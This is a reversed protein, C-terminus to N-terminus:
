QRVGMLRRVLRGATRAPALYRWSKSREFRQIAGHLREVERILDANERELVELRKAATAYDRASAQAQDTLSAQASSL